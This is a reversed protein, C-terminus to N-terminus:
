CLIRLSLFIGPFHSLSPGPSSLLPSSLVFPSKPPLSFYDSIETLSHGTTLCVSFARAPVHDPASYRDTGPSPPRGHSTMVSTLYSKSYYSFLPPPVMLARPPPASPSHSFFLRCSKHFRQVIIIFPM